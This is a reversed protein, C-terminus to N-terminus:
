FDFDYTQLRLESECQCHLYLQYIVRRYSMSLLLQNEPVLWVYNKSLLTRYHQANVFHM